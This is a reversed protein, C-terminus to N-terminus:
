HCQIAYRGPQDQPIARFTEWPGPSDYQRAATVTSGGGGEVSLYGDHHSLLAFARGDDSPQARFDWTGRPGPSDYQRAANVTLDLEATLYAGHASILSIPQDTPM